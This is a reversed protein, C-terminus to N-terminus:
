AENFPPWGVAERKHNARNNIIEL